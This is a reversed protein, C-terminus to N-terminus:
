DVLEFKIDTKGGEPVTLTLGSTEAKGYKEPILSKPPGAAPQDHSGPKAAVTEAKANKQITVLYDGPAAGNEPPFAQLSFNGSSDSTATASVAKEGVAKPACVIIADALPQGNYTVTGSAKTTKPRAKQFKDPGGGGCGLTCILTLCAFTAAARRSM